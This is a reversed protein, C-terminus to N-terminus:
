RNDNKVEQNNTGDEQLFVKDEIFINKRLVVTYITKLFIKLDLLLSINEVYYIDNKFKNESTISNRFFAQNYGTVGPRVLLKMKESSNYIELAEPLDPRPGIILLILLWFPLAIIAIIFDFFRKLYGKYM